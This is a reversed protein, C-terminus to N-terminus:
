DLNDIIEMDYLLQAVQDLMFREPENDDDDLLIIINEDADDDYRHVFSTVVNEFCPELYSGLRLYDFETLDPNDKKFDTIDHINYVREAPKATMKHLEIIVNVPIYMTGSLASIEVSHAKLYTTLERRTLM